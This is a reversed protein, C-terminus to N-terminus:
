STTSSTPSSGTVAHPSRWRGLASIVSRNRTLRDLVQKIFDFEAAAGHVPVLLRRRWEDIKPRGRKAKHKGDLRDRILKRAKDPLAAKMMQLAGLARFNGREAAAVADDVIDSVPVDFVHAPNTPPKELAARIAPLLKQYMRQATETYGLVEMVWDTVAAENEWKPPKRKDEVSVPPTAQLM